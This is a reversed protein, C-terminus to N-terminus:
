TLSLLNTIRKCLNQRNQLFIHNGSKYYMNGSTANYSCLELIVKVRKIITMSFEDHKKKCQNFGLSKDQIMKRFFKVCNSLKLFSRNGHLNMNLLLCHECRTEMGYSMLNERFITPMLITSSEPWLKCNQSKM